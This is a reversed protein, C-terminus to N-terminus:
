PLVEGLNVAAHTAPDVHRAATPQGIRGRPAVLVAGGPTEAGGTAASTRRVPLLGADATVTSRRGSELDLVSLGGARTEFVLSGAGSGDVAALGAEEVLLRGGDRGCTWRSSRARSVPVPATSWPVTAASASWRAREEFADMSGTAPDM